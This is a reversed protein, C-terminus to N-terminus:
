GIAHGTHRELEVHVEDTLVCSTTRGPEHERRAVSSRLRKRKRMDAAACDRHYARTSTKPRGPRGIQLVTMDEQREYSSCHVCRHANADGCAEYARSRKHLLAHYSQDECVVLNAHANNCTDGDVHHVEVRRPLHRGLVAEAILLHEYVYGTMPKARPHSPMHVAMYGGYHVRGGKWAASEAGSKPVPRYERLRM